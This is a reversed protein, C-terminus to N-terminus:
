PLFQNLLHSSYANYLSYAFSQPLFGGAQKRLHEFKSSVPTPKSTQTVNAAGFSSIWDGEARVRQHLSSVGQDHVFPSTGPNFAISANGHHRALTEALTGGLSHGVTTVNSSGYFQHLAQESAFARQYRESSTLRGTALSFDASLDDISATGRHGSYVHGTPQHVVAFHEADNFRSDVTYTQPSYHQNILQQRESPAAYALNAFFAPDAYAM